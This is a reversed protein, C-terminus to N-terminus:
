KERKDDPPSHPAEPGPWEGTEREWAERFLHLVIAGLLECLGDDILWREDTPDWPYWICLTDDKYRHPSSPGDVSVKPFLPQDRAFSVEVQRQEYYPVDLNVRYTLGGGLATSRRLDPFQQRAGLEFVLCRREDGYWPGGSRKGGRGHGSMAM